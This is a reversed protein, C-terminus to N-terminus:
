PESTAAAFDAWTDFLAIEDIAFTRGPLYLQSEIGLRTAPADNRTISATLQWQPEQESLKDDPTFVALHIHDQGRAQTVVKAILLYTEGATYDTEGLVRAKSTRNQIQLRLSNRAEGSNGLGIRTQNNGLQLFVRSAGSPHNGSWRILASIYRTSDTSWDIPAQLGRWIQVKRGAEVEFRHGGPTHGISELAPSHLSGATVLLDNAVPTTLEADAMWTGTWGPPAPLEALATGPAADFAERQVNQGHAGCVILIATLGAVCSSLPM